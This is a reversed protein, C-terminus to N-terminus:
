TRHLALVLELRGVVLTFAGPERWADLRGPAGTVWIAGAGPVGILRALGQMAQDLGPIAQSNIVCGNM